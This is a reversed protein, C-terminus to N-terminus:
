KNGIRFMSAQGSVPRGFTARDGAAHGANHANENIYSSRSRPTNLQVGDDKMKKNILDSKIVMLANKNDSTAANDSLERLRQNIRNCCGIVFGNILLRKDHPQLSQYGHAWMYNKLEKMVFHSLTEVLWVSFDVDSQLGCFNITKKSNSTWVETQTFKSISPALKRRINHPDRMDSKAITAEEGKLELDEETVEYADMMSQAMSMAALAEAETCGANVTKALIARIKNILNERNTTM